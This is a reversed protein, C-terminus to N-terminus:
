YGGLISSIDFGEPLNQMADDIQKQIDSMDPMEAEEMDPYDGTYGDEYTGSDENMSNIMEEIGAETESLMAKWDEETMSTMEDWEAKEEPTMEATLAEMDLEEVTKETEWPEESFQVTTGNLLEAEAPDESFSQPITFYDAGSSDQMPEGDKLAQLLEEITREKTEKKEVKEFGEEVLTAESANAPAVVKYDDNKQMDATDETIEGSSVGDTENPKKTGFLSCSTLSLALALIALITLITKKM